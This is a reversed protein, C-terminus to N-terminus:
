GKDTVVFPRNLLIPHDVIAQILAEDTLAPNGLKLTQYIPEKERMAERVSLGARTILDALQHKDLPNDLYNIIIPEIGHRQLQELAARSKSCRPNHYIKTMRSFPDPFHWCRYLIKLSHRSQSFGSACRRVLRPGMLTADRQWGGTQIMLMTDRTQTYPGAKDRHTQQKRGTGPGAAVYGTDRGLRVGYAAP